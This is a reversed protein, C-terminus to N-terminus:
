TKGTVPARQAIARAFDAAITTIDGAGLMVVIDGPKVVGLLEPIIKEKSLNAVPSSTRARIERCLEESTIGDIPKESAAYIDTVILRDSELLSGAFDNFLGKLRSYRHPQFVVVLRSSERRGQTGAVASQFLRASELTAKIETPHHAYDDIVWIDDVKSILQFRRQVGQYEKLYKQIVSFEVSLDLALAICALANLVNHRGPVKLDVRGLQKGDVVCYFKTQFGDFELEVARVRNSPALGYTIYAQGNDLTIKVLNDDDGCIILLGGPVTKEIFAKYAGLVSKWDPYHDVHELDINTIVSYRPHFYLFSGDSEDVESVFCDGKGMQAHTNTGSVIGGIAVTPAMGAGTLVHAIMSTTTTKGHAGAVTVAMSGEMLQALLQARRLVTKGQVQAAILEPNDEKVASSYVVFQAGDIHEAAHGLYIEAGRSKLRETIQNARLDSGSVQLGQDLLLAALGGMGIGGIGILFYKDRM